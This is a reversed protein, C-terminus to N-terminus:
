KKFNLSNILDKGEEILSIQQPFDGKFLNFLIFDEFLLTSRNKKWSPVYGCPNMGIYTFLAQEEPNYASVFAEAYRVEYRKIYFKFLHLFLYLEEITNIHYVTKEFNNVQPTYLFQFYSNMGKFSMRITEYGFEDFSKDVRLLECLKLIKYKDVRSFLTSKICSHYDELIIQDPALNYQKSSYDYCSKVSQLIKPQKRSRLRGIAQGDYKIQMLVSEVKEFFIDKNPYFAIPLLGCLAMPYQSKSHATRNEVYWVLVERKYYNSMCLMSGIMAKKTDLKGQFKKRVMFGRIYGKQHFFDLVFTICGTIEQEPNLFVLFEFNPDAIRNEVYEIDLMEVYPYDGNYIDNYIRVIDQSDMPKARRITPNIKQRILDRNRIKIDILVGEDINFDFDRYFIDVSPDIDELFLDENSVEELAM